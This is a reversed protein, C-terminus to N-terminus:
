WFRGGSSPTFGTERSYIAYRIADMAHDDMKLPEEKVNKTTSKEYRYSEFERIVNVCKDMVYLHPKHNRVVLKQAVAKIGESISYNHKRAKKIKFGNQNFLHIAEPKHDAFGSFIGYKARLDNLVRLLDTNTHKRKYFEDFVYYRGDEDVGICLIVSPNEFGFDISFFKENFEEPRINNPLKKIVHTEPTFEKYVRGEYVHFSALYEQAYVEASLTAKAEALDGPSLHPNSSSPAQFSAWDVHKEPARKSLMFLKYIWNRGEPTTLFLADGEKDTLTPRLYKQWIAEKVKAAEDFVLFDVGEGLLSDPNEASKGIIQTGNKLIIHREKTSCKAVDEGRLIIKFIKVVERFIKDTLDYTPAVIWIIQNPECAKYSIEYSALLSKGTRRGCVVVRFRKKSSHIAVQVPHPIYKDEERAKANLRRFWSDKGFKYEMGKLEALHQQLEEISLDEINGFTSLTETLSM